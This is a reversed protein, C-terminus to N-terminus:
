KKKRGEQKNRTVIIDPHWTQLTKNWVKNVPPSALIRRTRLIDGNIQRVLEPLSSFKREPRLRRMFYVEIQKRYLNIRVDLLHLELVPARVRAITPHHGFNVVGPYSRRDILAQVAYIGTPPYAENGAKINATPFGLTRGIRQGSVVTGLISFPRGLLTAAEALNGTTVANRVRTSSVPQGGSRVSPLPHVAIGRPRAWDALLSGDGRGKYGFRWDHGMFIARLTPIGLALRRLFTEPETAAFRHNFPILLCGDLGMQEMLRLKHATGTLLLPATGPTLIKLPHPDFTLAWAEGRIARAQDIAQQLVEQHGCHIGDFFGAALCIPLPRNRLASLQRVVKM